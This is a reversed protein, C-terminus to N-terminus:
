LICLSIGVSSKLANELSFNETGPRSGLKELNLFLAEVL